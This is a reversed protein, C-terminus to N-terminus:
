GASPTVTVRVALAQEAGGLIVGRMPTVDGPMVRGEFKKHCRKYKRGSGCWCPDNAQPLTTPPNTMTRM